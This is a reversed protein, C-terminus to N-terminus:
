ILYNFFFLIVDFIKIVDNNHLIFFIFVLIKDQNYIIEKCCLPLVVVFNNMSIFCAKAFFTLIILFNLNFFIKSLIEFVKIASNIYQRSLNHFFLCVHKTGFVLFNFKSSLKVTHYRYYFSFFKFM